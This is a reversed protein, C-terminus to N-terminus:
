WRWTAGIMPGDFALEKVTGGPKMEYSLHRWLASVSGWSFAYGVGAAAQWTLRSEGAGADLYFPLSWAGSPGFAYRGKLGVIGDWLSPNTESAGSRAAPPLSGISGAIDWRTTARIDLLRVGGLADLALAPGSALRYQGAVSWAVGKLDWEIRATTGVPLGSGGITFDRSREKRDGFDLYVLDTFAGWRGNHADLSGMLAFELKDLVDIDITPGGPSSPISTSGDVSPLYLYLTAGFRWPGTTDTSTQAQVPLPCAAGLTAACLAVLRRSRPSGDAARNM